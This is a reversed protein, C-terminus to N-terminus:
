AAGSTASGGRRARLVFYAAMTWVLSNLFRCGLELTTFTIAGVAYEYTGYPTVPDPTLHYFVPM